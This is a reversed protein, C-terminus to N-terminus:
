ATVKEVKYNDRSVSHKACAAAFDAHGEDRSAADLAEAETAGPYTGLIFGDRRITYRNM